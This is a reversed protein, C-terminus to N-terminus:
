RNVPVIFLHAFLDYILIPPISSYDAFPFNIEPGPINELFICPWRLLQFIDCQLAGKDLLQQSSIRFFRNGSFFCEIFFRNLEYKAGEETGYWKRGGRARLSKREASIGKGDESLVDYFLSIISSM